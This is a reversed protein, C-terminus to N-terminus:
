FSYTVRLMYNAPAQPFVGEEQYYKNEDRFHARYVWADAYYRNDLINNIYVGLRFTGESIKFLCSLSADAVFYAPVERDPNETNDWYQKGVYKGRVCIGATNLFNSCSNKFPLYSIGASAIVSPSMLITTKDFHTKLLGLYNWDDSNDYNEVYNTYNKIKNTSFAANADMKLVPFIQWAVALEIGRRYSVPVNEKITYGVDSLKGTELLMNRYEMMYINASASFGASSYSYGSEIDVMREPKLSVEASSNGSSIEDAVTEINKELDSRGPERHGLAVSVYAKGFSSLDFSFGAKPNFFNWHKRYDLSVSNDDPGTMKLSVNRYQLDLYADFWSFPHYEARAFTNLDDKTGNNRYWESDSYDYDNGAIGSWIVDGFHDGNYRSVYVGGIVDMKDSKYKVNSNVVAYYNDMEKRVVFDSEDLSQSATGFGVKGCAVNPKYEEYYGDGKTYNLTTSWFVRNGFQHTFNFQLHRQTYNDTQNDYYRKNGWKDEYEGAPNYKRNKYYMALPIGEWTIGTHQIGTLYTLKFSNSGKLYGIEAFVSRVKAKANRIYGDTYGHSYAFSAYLGSKTLGTGASLTSVFTDFSGSSFDFYGYPSNGISATSMNISAGFAGSGNASTGLGRQLQISSLMNPLAPINVWFVEQSEADNLTIGNLTVNTQSGRSGRVTMKSYGLGTGGENTTIVSPQSSLIMPLSNIPDAARLAKKNVMTFAVPASRSARSASIIVSDLHETLSLSDKCVPSANSAEATLCLLGALAYNFLFGRM